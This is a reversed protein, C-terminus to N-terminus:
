WGGGGGGGSSSGGSSGGSSSGGSSGSSPRSVGAALAGAAATWSGAAGAGGFTGGGGSWSSGGGRSWSSGDAGSSGTSTAATAGGFSGFWRDVRKQLGLALLYPLWSDDLAPRPRRLERACLRRAGVLLRRLAVADKRDRTRAANLISNLQATTSLALALCGFLGLYELDFPGLVDASLITWSAVTAAPAFALLTGIAPTWLRDARRRYWRAFGHGLSLTPLALLVILGGVIAAPVLGRLVGELLLCALAGLALLMSIAPSPKRLKSSFGPLRRLQRSIGSRILSVPSFGSTRYRERVAATDTTTRGGFFLKDVLRREYDALEERRCRLELELIRKKFWRGEIRVSSGLRGESVLRALVAAVEPAGIRHDWVAGVVEPPMTALHREFWDPTLTSPLKARRFRGQKREHTLFRALLLAVAALLAIAVGFRAQTSLRARVSSPATPALRLLGIDLIVSSGPAIEGRVVTVTNSRDGPGRETGAAPMASWADDIELRLRFSEIVGERDAFAFDHALWYVGDRENVVGTLSYDLEYLLATEAFEPDSPRRSRWRLTHRGSWDYNDVTELSGRSMEIATGSEPDVRRMGHFRLQQGPEVRFVREGGNWNGSFVMMQSELVHLVGAADLRADVELARWHLTRADAVGTALLGLVIALRVGKTM